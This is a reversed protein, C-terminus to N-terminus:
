NELNSITTNIDEGIHNVAFQLKSGITNKFKMAIMVVIALILIYETTSQGREDLWLAKALRALKM